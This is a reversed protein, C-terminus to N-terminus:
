LLYCPVTRTGNAREPCLELRPPNFLCHRGCSEGCGERAQCKGARRVQDAHTGYTPLLGLKSITAKRNCPEDNRKKLGNCKHALASIHRLYSEHHSAASQSVRRAVTMILLFRILSLPCDLLISRSPRSRSKKEQASQPAVSKKPPFKLDTRYAFPSSHHFPSSLFSDAPLLSSPLCLTGTETTSQLHPIM